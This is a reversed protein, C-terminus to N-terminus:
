FYDSPINSQFFNSFYQLPGWKILVFLGHTGGEGWWNGIPIYIYPECHCPCMKCIKNALVVTTLVLTGIPNPGQPLKRIGTHWQSPTVEPHRPYSIVDAWYMHVDHGEWM